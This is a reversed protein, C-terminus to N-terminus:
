KTCKGCKCEVDKMYEKGYNYTLEEGAKITKKAHVFIHNGDAIAECNPKCSHNIYRATNKRSSGDITWPTDTVEFLYLGGKKNAEEETLLPGVYEIIFADKPIDQETFLGLGAIGRKISLTYPSKKPTSSKM